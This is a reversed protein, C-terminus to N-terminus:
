KRNIPYPYKYYYKLLTSDSNLRVDPSGDEKRPPWPDWTDSLTTVDETTVKEKGKVSILAYTLTKGDANLIPYARISVYDSNDKTLYEIDKKNIVFGQINGRYYLFGLGPHRQMQKARVEFTDIDIPGGRTQQPASQIKLGELIASIQNLKQVALTNDASKKDVGNNIISNALTLSEQLEEYSFFRTSDTSSLVQEKKETPTQKCSGLFLVSLLLWLAMKKM